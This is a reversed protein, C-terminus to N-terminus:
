RPIISAITQGYGLDSVPLGLGEEMRRVNAHLRDVSPALRVAKRGYELAERRHGLRWGCISAMDEPLVGCLAEEGYFNIARTLTMARLAADYCAQWLERQYYAYALDEWAGRLAPAEQVAQQFLALARDLDGRAAEAGAMLRLTGSREAEFDRTDMALYREFEAIAEDWRNEFTLERGLYHAHRAANPQERAALELLPLYQSRPKNPDAFQEIVFGPAVNSVEEVGDERLYEHCPSTWRYGHRAHVRNNLFRRPAGDATRGWVESYYVRNVTPLWAAELAKRWGPHLVTDLDLSVCIDIDDPLLDLAANRADDFRWPDIRIHTLTVGLGEFLPVTNDTSGTDAIQILDADRASATFREVFMEENLCIGYVAIKM